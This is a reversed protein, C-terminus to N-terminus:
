QQGESIFSTALPKTCAVAVIYGNFHDVAITMLDDDCPCTITNDFHIQCVSIGATRKFKWLQQLSAFQLTALKMQQLKLLALKPQYPNVILRM